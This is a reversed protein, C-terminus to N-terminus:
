NHYWSCTTKGGHEATRHLRVQSAVLNGQSGKGGSRRHGASLDEHMWTRGRTSVLSSDPTM